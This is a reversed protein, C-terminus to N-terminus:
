KSERTKSNTKKIDKSFATGSAELSQKKFFYDLISGICLIHIFSGKFICTNSDVYM